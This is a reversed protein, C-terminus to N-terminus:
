GIAVKSSEQSVTLSLAVCDVQNVEPQLRGFDCNFPHLAPDFTASMRKAFDVYSRDYQKQSLDVRTKELLGTL